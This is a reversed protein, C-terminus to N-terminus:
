RAGAKRTLAKRMAAAFATEAEAAKWHLHTISAKLGAEASAYQNSRRKAKCDAAGPAAVGPRNANQHM